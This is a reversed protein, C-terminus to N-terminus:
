FYLDVSADNLLDVESDKGVLKWEIMEFKGSQKKAKLIMKAVAKDGSVNTECDVIGKMTNVEGFIWPMLGDYNIKGGLMERAVQSRRLYYMTANMVPSSTKEYNFIGVSIATMGVAFVSFTFLAIKRQRIRPDQPLEANVVMVRKTAM